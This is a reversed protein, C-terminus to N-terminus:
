MFVALVDRRANVRQLTVQVLSEPKLKIGSTAPMDCELMFEPLLVQYGNRRRNLVVAELKEGVRGELHRLLWYRVRSRQVMGVRSMPQTLQAITRSLAAEDYGDELGLAARIQRQTVLDFYKRIPSTATVYSDLGLGSHRGPWPGLVFRNLLRRQM